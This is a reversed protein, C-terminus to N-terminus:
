PVGLRINEVHIDPGKESPARGTHHTMHHTQIRDIHQGLRQSQAKHVWFLCINLLELLKTLCVSGDSQTKIM